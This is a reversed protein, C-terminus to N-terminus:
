PPSGPFMNSTEIPVWTIGRKKRIRAMEEALYEFGNYLDPQHEGIKKYEKIIAGWKDWHISVPIGVKDYVLDGDILKRRLLVGIGDFWNLLIERKIYNEM